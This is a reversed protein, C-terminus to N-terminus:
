GKNRLFRADSEQEAWIRFVIDSGKRATYLSGNPYGGPGNGPYNWQCSSLSGNGNYSIDIFVDMVAKIIIRSNKSRGAQEEDASGVGVGSGEGVGVRVDVGVGKGVEVGCGVAVGNGSGVGVGAGVISGVVVPVGTDSAAM